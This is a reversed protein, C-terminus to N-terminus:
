PVAINTNKIFKGLDFGQIKGLEEMATHAAIFLVLGVGSIPGIILRRCSM